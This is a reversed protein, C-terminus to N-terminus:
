LAEREAIDAEVGPLFGQEFMCEGVEDGLSLRDDECESRDCWETHTAQASM